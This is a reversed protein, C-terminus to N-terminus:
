ERAPPVEDNVPVAVTAIPNPVTAAPVSLPVISWAFTLDAVVFKNFYQGFQFYDREVQPMVNLGCSGNCLRRRCWIILDHLKINDYRMDAARLRLVDNGAVQRMVRRNRQLLCHGHEFVRRDYVHRANQFLVRLILQPLQFFYLHSGFEDLYLQSWEKGMGGHREHGFM